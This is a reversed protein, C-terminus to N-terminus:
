ADNGRNTLRKSFLHARNEFGLGEYFQHADTRHLASDLEIRECGMDRASNEVQKLLQTGIGQGRFQTDVIIEDVHAISGQCWLSHKTSMSCYGVIREDVTACFHRHSGSRASKCFTAKAKNRDIALDPWLQPLLKVVIDADAEVCQRIAATTPM